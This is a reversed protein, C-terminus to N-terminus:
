QQQVWTSQLAYNLWLWIALWPYWIAISWCNWIWKRIRLITSNWQTHAFLICCPFLCCFISPWFSPVWQDKSFFEEGFPNLHINKNQQFLINPYKLLYFCSPSYTSNNNCILPIRHLQMPKGGQNEELAWISTEKKCWTTLSFNANSDISPQNSNM